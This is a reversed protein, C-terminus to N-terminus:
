TMVELQTTFRWPGPRGRLLKGNGFFSPHLPAFKRLTFFLIKDKAKKYQALKCREVGSKQLRFTNGGATPSGPGKLSGEEFSAEMWLAERSGGELFDGTLGEKRM